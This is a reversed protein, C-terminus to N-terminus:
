TPPFGVRRAHFTGIGGYAPSTQEVVFGEACLFAELVAVRCPDDHLVRGRLERQLPQRSGADLEHFEGVIEDVLHLRHSSYVIPWESGECDLKLLRIRQGGNGLAMDVLDDFPVATMPTGGPGGLVNGGGTNTPWNRAPYGGFYLTREAFGSGWVAAHFLTVRNSFAALNRSAVEFNERDAEFAWVHGAGNLLAIFSFGGIHCGIDM